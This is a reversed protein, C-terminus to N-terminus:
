IFAPAATGAALCVAAVVGVAFPVRPAWGRLLLVVAASVLCLGTWLYLAPLLGALFVRIFNHIM